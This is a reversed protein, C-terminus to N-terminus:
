SQLKRSFNVAEIVPIVILAIALVFVATLAPNGKIPMVLAMLGVGILAFSWIIMRQAAYANIAYWLEDSELSRRTRFGYWINRAVRGKLLPISVIIILIGSIIYGAAIAINVTDLHLTTPM